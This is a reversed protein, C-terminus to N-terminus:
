EPKEDLQRLIIREMIPVLARHGEANYHCCSDQRLKLYDQDVLERQLPVMTIGHEKAFDLFIAHWNPLTTATESFPLELTPALYMVLKAGASQALEPVKKLRTKSFELAELDGGRMPNREGLVLTMYEYFRSNLLLFRNLADPVGAMGIFGDSRIHYATTGYATEGILSYDMWEVWDEWMILAPKYRAVEQRAIVYKQEFSFGAQAFNLICYGPLPRLQNLRRELETTFTEEVTLGSGFSISSGFFLVRIREPYREVCDRNHRDDSYEWVPVGDLVRLGYGRVMQVAPMPKFIRVGLEALLLGIVLGGGAIAL